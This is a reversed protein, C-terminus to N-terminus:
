LVPREVVRDIKVGGIVSVEDVRIELVTQSNPGSGGFRLRGFEPPRRSFPRSPALAVPWTRRFRISRTRATTRSSSNALATFDFQYSMGSRAPLVARTPGCRDTRRPYCLLLSLAITAGWPPSGDRERAARLNGILLFRQDPERLRVRKKSWPPSIALPLQATAM